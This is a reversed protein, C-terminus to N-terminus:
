VNVINDLGSICMPTDYLNICKKGRTLMKKNFQKFYFSINHNGIYRLEIM